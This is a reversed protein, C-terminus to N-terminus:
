NDETTVTTQAQQPNTTSTPPISTEIRQGARTRSQPISRANAANFAREADRKATALTRGDNFPSPRQPFEIKRPSYDTDPEEYNGAPVKPGINFDTRRSNAICRGLGADCWLHDSDCVPCAPARTYNYWAGTWFASYGHANIFDSFAFMKDFATSAHQPYDTAPNRKCAIRQKTRFVEWIHDTCAAILYFVPDYAATNGDAVTGGVWNLVGNQHFELVFQEGADTRIPYM